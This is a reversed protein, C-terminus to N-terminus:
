ISVGTIGGTGNITLVKLQAPTTFTGGQVTLVDNVSYNNGANAIVATLTAGLFSPLDSGNNPNADELISPFTVTSSSLTPAFNPGPQFLVRGSFIDAPVEGNAGGSLANQNQDLKNGAYDSINPGLTVRYFGVATQNTGFVIKDINHPNPQGPPPLPTI